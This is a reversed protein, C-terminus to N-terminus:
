GVGREALGARCVINVAMEAQKPISIIGYYVAVDSHLQLLNVDQQYSSNMLDSHTTGTVAIVPTNDAKADYLGNLLDIAGPGSTTVVADNEPTSQM